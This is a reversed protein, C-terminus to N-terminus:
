DAFAVAMEALAALLSNVLQMAETDIALFDAVGIWLVAWVREHAGSAQAEEMAIM